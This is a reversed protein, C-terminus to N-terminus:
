FIFKPPSEATIELCRIKQITSYNSKRPFFVHNVTCHILISNPFVLGVNFPSPIRSFPDILLSHINFNFKNGELDMQDYDQVIFPLDCICAFDELSLTIHHKKVKSNIISYKQSLNAYFMRVLELYREQSKEFVSNKLSVFNFAKM